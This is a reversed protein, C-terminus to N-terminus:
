GNTAGAECYEADSNIAWVDVATRGAILNGATALGTAISHDMNNYRHMGNRGIPHLNPCQERLARRLRSVNASSAHDYVPYAKPQRIVLGERVDERAILGLQVMERTAMAILAEDEMRWLDEGEFCFYELGYCTTDPDPVMSQSWSKFNQIRGVGVDGDHVYLWHDDLRGRDRAILDVLVMDRYKLGNAAQVVEGPLHPRVSLLTEALPASTVVHRALVVEEGGDAGEHRVQWSGDETLELGEVRRGLRIRGGSAVIEEAFRQWLEGIGGEPYKFRDILTRISGGGQGRGWLSRVASLLATTLSLDKIRQAAWDASIRSCDVGWVKETYTKFFLEFLRRGFRNVVWDEFTRPNELPKIQARGYSLLCRAAEVMGLGMLAEMPQLPYSFMSGRYLIRSVRAQETMRRGLLSAWLEDIEASRTFLRHPGIDIGFGRHRVTRSLGGLYDPDAELVLTHWGSRALEYAAALGAPGAGVVVVDFARSTM